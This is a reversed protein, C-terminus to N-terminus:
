GPKKLFQEKFSLGDPLKHPGVKVHNGEVYDTKSLSIVYSKHIQGFLKVPLQSIFDKLKGHVEINRGTSVFKVYDGQAELFLLENFDVKYNKKDARLMIHQLGINSTEKALFRELIRNIAIRFREFSVPKLLYDMADVDFGVVAHVPYATIFVFM